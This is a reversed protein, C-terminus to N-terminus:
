KGEYAKQIEAIDLKKMKLVVQNVRMLQEPTSSSMIENMNSPVIQWSIGFQDKLWGCQESKPEASLKDWYYDIEEQTDCNVIFSVAENFNFNHKYASDMAIFWQDELRFDAYMITGEKDPEMGEQYRAFFGQESNEFVSLYYNMAEEAKGCKDGVFMLSHMIPPRREGIRNALSLQWSLGYKDQVWGYLENYPYKQLPMLVEGGESLKDWLNHIFEKANPVHSPNVNVSFSLSPNFKFYPGASISMFEQGWLEFSVISADGGPTEHLTIENTIKSNPFLSIYFEAAEKAEKDFWLNPIIKQNTKSM